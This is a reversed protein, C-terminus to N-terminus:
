QGAQPHLRMLPAHWGFLPPFGNLKLMAMLITRLARRLFNM